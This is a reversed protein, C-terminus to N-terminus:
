KDELDTIKDKYTLYHNMTLNTIQEGFV